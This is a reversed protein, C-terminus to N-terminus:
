LFFHSNTLRPLQQLGSNVPAIANVWGWPICLACCSQMAEAALVLKVDGQPLM